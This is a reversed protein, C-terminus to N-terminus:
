LIGGHAKLEGRKLILFNEELIYNSQLIYFSAIGKPFAEKINPLKNIISKSSGV